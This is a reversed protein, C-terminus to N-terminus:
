GDIELNSSYITFVCFICRKAQARWLAWYANMYNSLLLDVPDDCTRLSLLLGHDAKLLM